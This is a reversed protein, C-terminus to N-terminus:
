IICMVCQVDLEIGDFFFDDFLDYVFKLVDDRFKSVFEKVGM